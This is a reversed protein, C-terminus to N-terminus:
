RVYVRTRDAIVRTSTSIKRQRIKNNLAQADKKDNYAGVVCEWRPSNFRAMATIGPFAREFKGKMAEAKAKAEGSNGGSYIQVRYCAVYVYKSKDPDNKAEHKLKNKISNIDKKSLKKEDKKSADDEKSVGAPETGNVISDIISDQVITVKGEGEKQSKVKETFTEQAQASFALVFLAILTVFSKM